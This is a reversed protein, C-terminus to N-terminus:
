RPRRGLFLILDDAFLSAPRTPASRMVASHIHAVRPPIDSAVDEVVCLTRFAGQWLECTQSTALVALALVVVLVRLARAARM